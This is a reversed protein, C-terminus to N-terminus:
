LATFARVSSSDFLDCPAGIVYFASSTSEEVTKLIRLTGRMM